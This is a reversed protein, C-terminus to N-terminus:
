LCPQGDRSRCSDATPFQHAIAAVAFGTGISLAIVAPVAVYWRRYIPLTNVAHAGPPQNGVDHEVIPHQTMVVAIDQTQGYTVAVFRIFDRYRPHTVRLAQTGVPLTIEHGRAFAVKAGNVFISAGEVDIALRLTGLYKEPELLRIAAGMPGGNADTAGVTLTTSRLDAGTAVDTAGLYIVQVDGLGGVEGNVVVQAGVLKGLETLCRADGDCARLHPKKARDILASVKAAPIVINGPLTAIAQEVQALATKTRASKEDVNVVSLPAVAVVREAYTLAPSALVFGIALRRLM